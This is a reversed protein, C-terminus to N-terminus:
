VVTIIGVCIMDSSTCLSLMFLAGVLLILVLEWFNTQIVCYGGVELGVSHWTIDLSPHNVCVRPQCPGALRVRDEQQSLNPFLEPFFWEIGEVSGLTRKRTYSLPPAKCARPGQENWATSFLVLVFRELDELGSPLWLPPFTGEEDELVNWPVGLYGWEGTLSHKLRGPGSKEIRRSSLHGFTNVSCVCCLVHSCWAPWTSAKCARSTSCSPSFTPQLAQPHLSDSRLLWWASASSSGHGFAVSIQFILCGLCMALLAPM